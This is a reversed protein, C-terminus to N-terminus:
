QSSQTISLESVNVHKETNHDVGSKQRYCKLEWPAKLICQLTKNVRFMHEKNYREATEKM